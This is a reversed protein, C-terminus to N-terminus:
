KEAEVVKFHLVAREGIRDVETFVAVKGAGCPLREGPNYLVYGPPPLLTGEEGIDFLHRVEGTWYSDYDTKPRSELKLLRAALKEIIQLFAAEVPSGRSRTAAYTRGDPEIQVEHVFQGEDNKYRRYSVPTSKPKKM